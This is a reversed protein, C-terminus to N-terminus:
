RAAKRSTATRAMANGALVRGFRVAVVLTALVSFPLLFVACLVLAACGVLGMCLLGVTDGAHDIARGFLEPWGCEAARERLATLAHCAGLSILGALM